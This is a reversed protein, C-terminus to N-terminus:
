HVVQHHTTAELFSVNFNIYFIPNWGYKKGVYSDTKLGCHLKSNVEKWNFSFM